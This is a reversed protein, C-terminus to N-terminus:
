ECIAELDVNKESNIARPNESNGDSWKKFQKGKLPIATLRVPIGTFYKGKFQSSNVSMDNITV